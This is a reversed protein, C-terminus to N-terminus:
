KIPIIRTLGDNLLVPFENVGMRSIAKFIRDQDKTNNMPDKALFIHQTNPHEKLYKESKKCGELCVLIM